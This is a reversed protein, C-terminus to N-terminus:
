YTDSLYAEKAVVSLTVGARELASVTAELDDEADGNELTVLIMRSHESGSLAAAMRRVEYYVNQFSKVLTAVIEAAAKAPLALDTTPPCAPGACDGVRAVAIRTHALKGANRQLAEQFETAFDATRLSDTPDNLFLLTRKAENEGDEEEEAPALLVDLIRSLTRGRETADAATRDDQALLQGSLLAVTLFIAPLLRM